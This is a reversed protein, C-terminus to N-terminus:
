SFVVFLPVTLKRWKAAYGFPDHACFTKRHGPSTSRCHRKKGKGAAKKGNNKGEQSHCLYALTHHLCLSTKGIQSVRRAAFMTLPLRGRLICHLMAADAFIWAVFGGISDANFSRIWIRRSAM